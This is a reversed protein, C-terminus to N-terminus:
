ASFDRSRLDNRKSARECLHDSIGALSVLGIQGSHDLSLLYTYRPWSESIGAPEYWSIRTRAASEIVSGTAVMLRGSPRVPTHPPQIDVAGSPEGSRKRSRLM